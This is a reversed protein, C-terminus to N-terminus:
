SAEEQPTERTQLEGSIPLEIVFCTNPHDEKYFLDGGQKRMMEKASALGVGTGVNHHKTSFFPEFIRDAIEKPIGNGCDIFYIQIFNERKHLEIKMWRDPIDKIADVSNKLLHLVVQALDSLSCRVIMSPYQNDISLEIGHFFLRYHNLAMLPDLVETTNYDKIDGDESNSKSIAKLSYVIRKVRIITDLIKALNDKLFNIDIGDHKVKSLIVQVRGSIIAMPNNLEHALGSAMEGLTLMKEAEILNIKKLELQKEKEKIASIDLCLASTYFSNLITHKTLICLYYKSSENNAESIELTQQTEESVYFREIADAFDSNHHIFGLPKGILDVKTMQLVELLQSNCDKYQMNEDFLSVIGPLTNIFTNLRDEQTKLADQNKEFEKLTRFQTFCQFINIALFLIIGSFLALGEVLHPAGVLFYIGIPLVGLLSFATALVPFAIFSTCAISTFTAAVLLAFFSQFNTILNESLFVLPTTGLLIGQLIVITSFLLIWKKQNKIEHTYHRNHVFLRILGSCFFLTIYWTQAASLENFNQLSILIIPLALYIYSSYKTQRKLHEIRCSLSIDFINSAM